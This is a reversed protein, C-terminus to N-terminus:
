DRGAMQMHMANPKFFDAPTDMLYAGAGDPARTQAAAAAAQKIAAHQVGADIKRVKIREASSTIMWDRLWYFTFVGLGLVLLGTMISEYIDRPAWLRVVMSSHVVTRLAALSASERGAHLLAPMLCGENVEHTTQQFMEALRHFVYDAQDARRDRVYREKVAREPVCRRMYNAFTPMVDVLLVLALAVLLLRSVAGM